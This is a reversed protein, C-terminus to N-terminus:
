PLCRKMLAADEVAAQQEEDGTKTEDAHEACTIELRVVRLDAHLGEHKAIM